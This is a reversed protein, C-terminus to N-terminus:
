KDRGGYYRLPSRVAENKVKLWAWSFAKGRREFKAQIQSLAELMVIQDEESLWPPDTTDFYPWGKKLDNRLLKAVEYSALKRIQRRKM